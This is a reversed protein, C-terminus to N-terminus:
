FHSESTGKQFIRIEDRIDLKNKAANYLETSDKRRPDQTYITSNGQDIGKYPERPNIGARKLIAQRQRYTKDRSITVSIM